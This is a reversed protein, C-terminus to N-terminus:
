HLTHLRFSLWKTQIHNNLNTSLLVTALYFFFIKLCCCCCSSTNINSFVIIWTRYYEDPRCSPNKKKPTNHTSQFLNLFNLIRNTRQRSIIINLQFYRQTCACSRKGSYYTSKWRNMEDAVKVTLIRMWVKNAARVEYLLREKNAYSLRLTIAYKWAINHCISYSGNSNHLSMNRSLSDFKKKKLIASFPM